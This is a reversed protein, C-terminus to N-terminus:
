TERSTRHVTGIVGTRRGAVDASIIRRGKVLYSISIQCLGSLGLLISMSPRQGNGRCQDSISPLYYLCSSMRRMGLGHDVQVRGLGVCSRIGQFIHLSIFYGNEHCVGDNFQCCALTRRMLM